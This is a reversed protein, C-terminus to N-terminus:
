GDDNEVDQATRQLLCFENGEPDALVVWSVDLGQGVNVRTAGLELLRDQVTGPAHRVHEGTGVRTGDVREVPEDACTDSTM